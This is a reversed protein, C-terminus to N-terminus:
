YRADLGDDGKLIMAEVDRILWLARAARVRPACYGDPMPVNAYPNPPERFPDPKTRRAPDPRLDRTRRDTAVM